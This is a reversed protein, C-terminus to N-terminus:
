GNRCGIRLWENPKSALDKIHKMKEALREAKQRNSRADHITANLKAELDLRATFMAKMEAKNLNLDSRYSETTMKANELNRKTSRLQKKLNSREAKLQKVQEALKDNKANLQRNVRIIQSPVGCAKCNSM